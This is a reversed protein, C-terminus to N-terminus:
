KKSSCWVTGSLIICFAHSVSPLNELSNDFSDIMDHRVLM